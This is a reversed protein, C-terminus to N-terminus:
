QIIEKFLREFSDYMTREDEKPKRMKPNFFEGKEDVFLKATKKKDESTLKRQLMKELFFYLKMQNGRGGTTTQGKVLWIIPEEIQKPEKSFINQFDKLKGEIQPKPTHNVMLKYIETVTNPDLPCVFGTITTKSPSKKIRSKINTIIESTIEKSKGKGFLINEFKIKKLDSPSLLNNVYLYGFLDDMSFASNLKKFDPTKSSDINHNLWERAGKFNDKAAFRHMIWLAKMGLDWNGEYRPHNTTESFVRGVGKRDIENKWDVIREPNENEYIRILAVLKKYDEEDM